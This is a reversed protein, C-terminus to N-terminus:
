EMNKTETTWGIQLEATETGVLYQKFRKINSANRPYVASMIWERAASDLM